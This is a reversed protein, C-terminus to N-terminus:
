YPKPKPPSAGQPCTWLEVSMTGRQSGVHTIIRRADLGRSNILYDTIHSIQTQVAGYKGRQGPYVIVHATSTPDNQLDIFFNDLRAKEDNRSLEAFEDFKRCTLPIPFEVACNASCAVNYGGLEVAARISQGALGKTDVRITPTGQGEIITGASVTWNYVPVVNGLSGNLTSTFTVPQDISVPDPCSINVTPCTPAAPPCKVLVVVSSFVECEDEGTSSDITLFAKHYGATVGALDWAVNPGDGTIRGASTKWRYHITNGNPSYAQAKLNVLSPSTSGQCTEIVDPVATLNLTPPGYVFTERVKQARAEVAFFGFAVLVLPLLLAILNHQRRFM